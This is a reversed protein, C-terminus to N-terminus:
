RSVRGRSEETAVESHRSPAPEPHSSMNIDTTFVNVVEAQNIVPVLICARVQELVIIAQIYWCQVLGANRACQNAMAGIRACDRAIM